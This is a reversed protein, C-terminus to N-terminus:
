WGGQYHIERLTFRFLGDTLCGYITIATRTATMASM